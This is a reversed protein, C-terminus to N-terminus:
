KEHLQISGGTVPNSVPADPAAGPQSDFVLAGSRWLEIRFADAIGDNGEQQGDVATIRFRAAAGNLTGAGWFQARNGSVILMEVAASRFDVPEGPIWFRASGNPAARDPLFKVEFTFHAKRRADGPLLSFGSGTAFGRNVPARNPPRFRLMAVRNEGVVHGRNSIAQADTLGTLSYLDQMGGEATWVFAHVEGTATSSNGVVQGLDNIGNAHTSAGGLTGLDRMGDGPAWLFARTPTESLWTHGVIQDADNIGTAITSAGGLTGLDRIGEAPTWLFAHVDGDGTQRYGVVHGANNIATAATWGAALGGLHQMGQGPTWLFARNLLGVIVNSGVVQGLDNIGTATSAPAGLTGLDQMGQGPTWLFAHPLGKGAPVNTDSRGAVHDSENIGAAFSTPGWLTGLDQLGGAPTWLFAHTRGDSTTSAGVVHGAENVDLASTSAGGLTPLVIVDAGM